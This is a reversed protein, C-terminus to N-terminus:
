RRHHTDVCEREGDITRVGGRATAAGLRGAEGVVRELGGCRADRGMPTLLWRSWV